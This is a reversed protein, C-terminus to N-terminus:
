LRREKPAWITPIPARGSCRKPGTSPGMWAPTSCRSMERWYCISERWNVRELLGTRAPYDVASRGQSDVADLNAGRNLLLVVVQNDKDWMCTIAVMLATKGDSAPTNVRAGRDLLLSVRDLRGLRAAVMLPTRGDKMQANVNAGHDILSKVLAPQDAWQDLLKLLPSWGENDQANIAAGRQLVMRALPENAGIVRYESASGQMAILLATRGMPDRANVDAGKRLASQVDELAGRRRM